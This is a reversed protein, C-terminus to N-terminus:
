PRPRRPNLTPDPAEGDAEAAEIVAELHDSPLYWPLDGERRFVDCGHCMDGGASLRVVYDCTPCFRWGEPTEDTHWFAAEPSDLCGGCTPVHAKEGIRDVHTRGDSPVGCFECREGDLHERVADAGRQASPREITLIPLPRSVGDPM